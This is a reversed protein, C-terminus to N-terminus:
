YLYLCGLYNILHKSKMEYELFSETSVESTAM